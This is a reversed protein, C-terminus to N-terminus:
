GEDYHAGKTATATEASNCLGHCRDSQTIQLARWLTSGNARCVEAWLVNSDPPPWPQGDPSDNTVTHTIKIMARKGDGARHAPRAGRGARGRVDRLLAARLMDLSGGHQLALSAAVAADTANGHSQSGVKHNDIFIEGVRGDAFRSITACYHLGEVQFDFTESARRKPLRERPLHRTTMTGSPQKKPHAVGGSM